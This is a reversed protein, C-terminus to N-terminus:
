EDGTQGFFRDNAIEVDIARWNMAALQGCVEDQDEGRAVYIKRLYELSVEAPYLVEAQECTTWYEPMEATRVITVSYRGLVTPAFMRCLGEVDKGRNCSPYINNTTTFFVGPHTLIIPDFSMICWWLDESRAWRCSHGFFAANIRSISLNVYDLWAEDKRDTANPKYIFQLEDVNPLRKRSKLANSHLAGMLGRHTTFHVVESIGTAEVVEQITM